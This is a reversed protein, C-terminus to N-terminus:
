SAKIPKHVKISNGEFRKGTKKELDKIENKIKEILTNDKESASFVVPNTLPKSCSVLGVTILFIYIFRLMLRSLQNM